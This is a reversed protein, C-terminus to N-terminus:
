LDVANALQPDRLLYKGQETARANRYEALAEEITARTRLDDRDQAIQRKARDWHTILAEHALRVRAGTGDGDAVLLRVQPDLLADILRREASGQAFQAITASRATPEVGSRGVTVLARLAR